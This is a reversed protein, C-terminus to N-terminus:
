VSHMVAAVFLLSRRAVARERRRALRLVVWIPAEAVGAHPWLEESRSWYRTICREESALFSQRDPQAM